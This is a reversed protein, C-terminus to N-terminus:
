SVPFHSGLEHPLTFGWGMQLGMLMEPEVVFLQPTTIQPPQVGKPLHVESCFTTASHSQLDRSLFFVPFTPLSQACLIECEVRVWELRIGEYMSGEEM